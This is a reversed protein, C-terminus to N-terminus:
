GKGQAKTDIENVCMPLVSQRERYPMKACALIGCLTEVNTHLSMARYSNPFGWWPPALCVFYKQAKRISTTNTYTLSVFM